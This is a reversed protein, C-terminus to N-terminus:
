RPLEWWLVESALVWAWGGSLLGVGHAVGGRGVPLLLAAVGSYVYSIRAAVGTRSAAERRRGHVVHAGLM